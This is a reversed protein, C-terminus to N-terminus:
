KTYSNNIKWCTFWSGIMSRKLVDDLVTDKYDSSHYSLYIRLVSGLILSATSKGSGGKSNAVAVVPM